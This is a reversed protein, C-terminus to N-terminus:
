NKKGYMKELKKEAEDLTNGLFVSDSLPERIEFYKDQISLDGYQEVHLHIGYKEELKEMRELDIKIGFPKDLKM